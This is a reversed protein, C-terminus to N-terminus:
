LLNITSELWTVGPIEGRKKLKNGQVSAARASVKMRNRFDDMSKAIIFSQPPMLLEAAFTNAQWESNEYVKLDGIKGRHHVAVKRHLFVHGAEHLITLRARGEDNCAAEYVASSIKIFPGDPNETCGDPYACAEIHPPLDDNVSWDFEPLAAPLSFELFQLVPFAEEPAVETHSRIVSALSRIDSIRLPPVKVGNLWDSM